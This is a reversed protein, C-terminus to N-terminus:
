KGGSTGQTPPAASAPEPPPQIGQARLARDIVAWVQERPLAGVIREGNVFLTPTSDIRLAEAEKQEARIATEDQATLCADVKTEDLKGLSAEQKAIRDLAAFSKPLNRDPGTIEEGHSHLYDVFNWYVDHNQAALCNADVAAHMAWPHLETLPDDKYIFRVQDKYHDMTAPFLVGHMRACFPCELDDFSVITVKAAPNGRIPRGETHITDGPTQTLDMTDLHVLRTNDDSILFNVQQTRSGQSITIPLTKYGTFESAARAGISVLVDPPLDYQSRVLIEIRRNLSSNVPPPQTQARCGITLGVLLTGALLRLKRM